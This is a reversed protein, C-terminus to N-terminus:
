SIAGEQSCSIEVHQHGIIVTTVIHLLIPACCELPHNVEDVFSCLFCATVTKSYTINRIRNEPAGNSILAQIITNFCKM